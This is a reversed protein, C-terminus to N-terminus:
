FSSFFQEAEIYSEPTGIDIFRGNIPYACLGKGVLTPFFQIELSCPVEVPLMDFAEIKMLYVGANILGQGSKDGKESFNTIENNETVEISGFRAIDEIETALISVLANQQIHHNLFDHMNFEIYSDGNMILVHSGKLYQKALSLAGGTGLSKSERSYCITLNQYADKLSEEVYDAMYGTCLVSKKFGANNLQDLLYNIFPKGCVEAMVKPRDSVSERLRTGLGGALIVGTLESTRLGSNFM